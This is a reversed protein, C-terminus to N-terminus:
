GVQKNLKWAMFGLLVVAGILVAWLLVKKGGDATVLRSFSFGKPIDHMGIAGVKAAPLKYEADREYGPILTTLPLDARKALDNGFALLYPGDGRSAFVVERAQYGAEFRPADKPAGAKPDIRVRWYRGTVPAIAVPQSRVEAGGKSLRYFTAGVVPRWDKSGEGRVSIEVPAVANTESLLVNVRTVPLAAQLDYTYEGPLDGRLGGVVVSLLQQQGPVVKVHEVRLGTLVFGSTSSSVRLYKVKRGALEIRPQLLKRGDQELALVSGTAAFQWTKLDESVEITVSALDTGPGPTWEIIAASVPETTASADAVWASPRELKPAPGKATSASRVSILTGRSDARVDLSVDNTGTAKTPARIPFLPLAVSEKVPPTAPPAGSFAFPLAEGKANFMRVDALDPRAARHVEFPVEVRHLGEGSTVTITASAPFDALSEAFASGALAVLVVAAVVKM